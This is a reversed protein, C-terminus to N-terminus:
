RGGARSECCRDLVARLEDPRVPKSVYYDMGSALCSQRDDESAHATMGIIPVQRLNPDARLRRTAELGDLEPMQWDMVILDYASRTHMQIAELGNGAVDVHCGMRELLRSTVKQNVANDEAVLVRLRTERETWVWALKPSSATQTLPAARDLPLSFWFTSGSGPMSDVGIEGGMLEVLRKSIVLGLGTGGFRRTVSVDAQTFPQFLRALAEASIGIGTDRVAIQIRNRGDALGTEVVDITVRGAPTFKIANGVLNFLIQRIRNPDGLFRVPLGEDMLLSLVLGKSAAQPALLNRMEGLLQRLDFTTRELVLRGAEIKSYDLIDNIIFLLAEASIQITQVYEIQEDSLPTTQLLAVTGLVGNMPTRIEHSMTAVFESKAKSAALAAEALHEARERESALQENARRLDATLREKEVLAEMLRHQIQVELESAM